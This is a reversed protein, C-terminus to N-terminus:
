KLDLLQQWACNALFLADEIPQHNYPKHIHGTMCDEDYRNAMYAALFSAVYQDKFQQETM